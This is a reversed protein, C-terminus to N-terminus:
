ALLTEVDKRVDTKDVQARDTGSGGSVTDIASDRAFLRDDGSEGSLKDRGTGGDLTDNGAGGKLVDNGAYGRFHNADTSGVLTDGGSGGYVNEIDFRVNDRENAEGDNASDDISVIVAKARSQYSAIDRGSGGSIKDSGSGGDLFDDGSGAKLADNGADGYLTDKGSSATMTDNGNGGDLRSPKDVTSGILITDNGDGGIVRIKSVGSAAFSKTKGDVEAILNAGSLTVKMNNAASTGRVTLTGSSVAADITGGGGGGGSRNLVVPSGAQFASTTPGRVAGDEAWVAAFESSRPDFNIKTETGSLLQTVKFELTGIKFSKTDGSGSGNSVPSSSRAVFFGDANSDDNSGVDADGDGDLDDVSGPDSGTATFPSVLEASLNGKAAGGNSSLFSGMVGFLSEDASGNAGNAIAWVEMKIVQDVASVTASKGGGALRVDITLSLLERSELPEFCLRAAIAAASQLAEGGSTSVSSHRQSFLGM